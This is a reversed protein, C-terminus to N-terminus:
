ISDQSDSSSQDTGVLTMIADRDFVSISRDIAEGVDFWRAEEIEDDKPTIRQGSDVFNSKYTLSIWDIGEENFIAEKIVFECNEVTKRGTEGNHDPISIVLGLEEKVERIAGDRPHEGYDVFGGPLTWFGAFFGRTVKALLVQGDENVLVVKSVVRHMTRYVSERAVPDVANDSILSDKLAWDSPWPIDPTSVEIKVNRNGLTYINVRRPVYGIGMKAVETPTPLRMLDGQDHYQRGPRAKKPGIGDKDVLLIRGDHELHVYHETDKISDGDLFM